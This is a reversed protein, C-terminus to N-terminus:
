QPKARLQWQIQRRATSTIDSFLMVSVNPELNQTPYDVSRKGGIVLVKIAKSVHKLFDHRYGTAQQYDSFNLAHSPRKFEVLLYEGNINENLLLDPRKNALEGRYSQALYDEVQRQLTQNSSFLSYEPGLIWLNHEIAKHMTSELTDSANALKELHDLFTSRASAQEVLFAMDALGFDNLSEAVAAVDRRQADALHEVVTRYDSRELAELVVFVISEVKSSPEDYYKELVKKIARDAYERKYGPMAALRAHITKQLRAHALRIEAGHTEAFASRLRSQVYETVQQFQESNEVVSDWGATVYESLGDAEIEGYMKRLLKAPFDDCQDLGFFSPKGVAKGDVMLTIGPERLGAKGSSISFRLAVAGTGSLSITDETYTGELDDIALPKGDIIITFDKQRGYEQILLQRLRNADPYVLGQHLNSLTITTGHQESPCGAVKPSIPLHEIDAVQELEALSLTFSVENGRARTTLTMVSAAMLGAFKGVGKRGKILRQKRATREGRRVRRDSAIKLYQSGLEQATMGTGDDAIIIPDDSMPEPLTVSVQEADADWANDVLEKLAKETSSYEQSLLTALRSDVQFHLKEM